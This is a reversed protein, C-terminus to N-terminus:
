GRQWAQVEVLDTIVGEFFDMQKQDDNVDSQEIVYNLNLHQKLGDHMKDQYGQCNSIELEDGVGFEWDRLLGQLGMSLLRQIDLREGAGKFKIASCIQSYNRKGRYGRCNVGIVETAFGLKTLMDTLVALVSVLKAFNRENNSCSLGFNMGIRINKAKKNRKHTIWTNDAGGLYRDIDIEDGEDMFRRTRMCSLGQQYFKSVNLSSEISTRMKQYSDLMMKSAKGMKLANYHERKTPFALGYRWKNKHSGSKDKTKHYLWGNETIVDFYDYLNAFEMYAYHNDDLTIETHQRM